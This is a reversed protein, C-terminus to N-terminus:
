FIFFSWHKTINHRHNKATKYISQLSFQAVHVSVADVIKHLNLRWSSRRIPDIAASPNLVLPRVLLGCSFTFHESWLEERRAAVNNQLLFVPFILNERAVCFNKPVGGGEFYPDLTDMRCLIPDRRQKLWDRIEGPADNWGSLVARRLFISTKAKM